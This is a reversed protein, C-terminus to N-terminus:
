KPFDKIIYSYSKLLIRNLTKQRYKMYCCYYIDTKKSVFFLTSDLCLLFDKGFDTPITLWQIETIIIIIETQIWNMFYKMKVESPWLGETSKPDSPMKHGKRYPYAVHPTTLYLIPSTAYNDMFCGDLLHCYFKFKVPGM